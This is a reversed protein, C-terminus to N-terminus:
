GEPFYDRHLQSLSELSKDIWRRTGNLGELQRDIAARLSDRYEPIPGAYARLGSLPVLAIERYALARREHFMSVDAQMPHHLDGQDPHKVVALVQVAAKAPRVEVIEGVYEGSKYAARVLEGPKWISDSMM